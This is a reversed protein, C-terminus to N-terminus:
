APLWTWPDLSGPPLGTSIPSIWSLAAAPSFRKRGLCGLSYESQGEPLSAAASQPDEAPSGHHPLEFLRGEGQFHALHGAHHFGLEAVM